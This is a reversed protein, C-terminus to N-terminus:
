ICSQPLLPFSTLYYFTSPNSTLNLPFEAEKTILEYRARGQGFDHKKVLGLRTLLDLTRYITALGIGPYLRHVRFFIEDASHHGSMKQMVDLVAQRPETIRLGQNRFATVWWPGKGRRNV